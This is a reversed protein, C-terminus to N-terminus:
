HSVLVGRQSRSAKALLKSANHASILRPFPFYNRRRWIMVDIFRMPLM